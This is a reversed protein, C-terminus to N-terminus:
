SPLHCCSPKVGVEIGLISVYVCNHLVVHINTDVFLDMMVRYLNALSYVPREPDLIPLHVQSVGRDELLAVLKRWCLKNTITPTLTPTEGVRPRLSFVQESGCERLVYRLAASSTELDAPCTVAIHGEAQLYYTTDYSIYELVDPRLSGPYVIERGPGNDPPMCVRPTRGQIAALDQWVSRPLAQNDVNARVRTDLTSM